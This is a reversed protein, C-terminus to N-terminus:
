LLIYCRLFLCVMKVVLILMNGKFCFICKSMLYDKFVIDNWVFYLVFGIGEDMNVGILILVFVFEECDM